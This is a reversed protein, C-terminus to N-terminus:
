FEGARGSPQNSVDIDVNLRIKVLKPRKEERICGYFVEQLQGSYLSYSAQIGLKQIDDTLPSVYM